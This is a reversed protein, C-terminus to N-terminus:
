DDEEKSSLNCFPTSCTKRNKDSFDLHENQAKMVQKMASQLVKNSISLSPPFAPLKPKRTDGVDLGEGLGPDEAVRPAKLQPKIPYLEEFNTPKHPETECTLPAVGSSDSVASSSAPRCGGSLLASSSSASASVASTAVTSSTLAIFSVASSAGGLVAEVQQAAASSDPVVARVAISLASNLGASLSWSLDFL